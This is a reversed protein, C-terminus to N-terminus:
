LDPQPHPPPTNRRLKLQFSNHLSPMVEERLTRCFECALHCSSGPLPPFHLHYNELPIHSLIIHARTFTVCTHLSRPIKLNTTPIPSPSPAWSLPHPPLGPDMEMTPGVDRHPQFHSNRGCGARGEDIRHHCRTFLM